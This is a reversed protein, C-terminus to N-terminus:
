AIVEDSINAPGGEGRGYGTNEIVTNDAFRSLRAEIARNPLDM